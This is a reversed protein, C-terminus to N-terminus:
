QLDGLEQAIESYSAIAAKALRLDNQTNVNLFSLHDPDFYDIEDEKIWRVDVSGFFSVIRSKGRSFAAEIPDLCNKSYIAHLPEAHGGIQPVTVDYDHCIGMMYELLYANLLPMDAGVVLNHNTESCKIGTYIGGLAGKNHYVDVAELVNVGPKLKPATQGPALSLILQESISSVVRLVRELLTEGGIVEAIKEGGFRRGKGGALIITSIKM